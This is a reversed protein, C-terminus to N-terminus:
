QDGPDSDLWEGRVKEKRVQEAMKDLFQQSAPSQVLADWEAEDDEEEHVFELIIEAIVAQKEEPLHLAEEFAKELVKSLAM